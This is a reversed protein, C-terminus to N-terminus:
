AAIGCRSLTDRFIEIYREAVARATSAQLHKEVGILRAHAAAPAHLATAIVQALAVEDGNPFTFGHGGIADVLGGRESVIPVCGCALGELAVIGFPEEYSSPVALFRHRNLMGALASGQLTGAFRVQNAVGEKVALAELMSRDAGDGIMTLNPALGERRLRGLARILVDGGKQSVLRGLFALDADRQEWSTKNVFVADDYANLVTHGCGLKRATYHSNAIGPTTRAVFRKAIDLLSLTGDDRQYANGHRYIFRRPALARGYLHKLSVNAQVHVDCWRLLRMFTPLNPQRIVTYPFTRDEGGPTLTALRVDHGLAVFERCLNEAMKQIGGVRPAFVTSFFFIKM